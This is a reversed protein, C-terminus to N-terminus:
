EKQQRDRTLCYIWLVLSPLALALLLSGIAPLGSKISPHEPRIGKGLDTLDESADILLASRTCKHTYMGEKESGYAYVIYEDGEKFNFNCSHSGPVTIIGIESSATGKWVEMVSFEVRTRWNIFHFYPFSLNIRLRRETANTKLVKGSFVAVAQNLEIKPSNIPPCTCASAQFYFFIVGFLASLFFKGIKFFSVPM